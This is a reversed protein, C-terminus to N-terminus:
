HDSCGLLYAFYATKQLPVRMAEQRNGLSSVTHGLCSALLWSGSPGLLGLAPSSVPLTWEASCGLEPPKCKGPCSPGVEKSNVCAFAYLSLLARELIFYGFGGVKRLWRCSIHSMSLICEKMHLCFLKTEQKPDHFICVCM